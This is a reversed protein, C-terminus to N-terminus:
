DKRVNFKMWDKITYDLRKNKILTYYFHYRFAMALPIFSFCFIVICIAYHGNTIHFGIYAWLLVACILYFITLTFFAKAQKALQQDTLQYRQIIKDFNKAREAKFQDLRLFQYVLDKIYLSYSRNRRWDAWDKFRFIKGLFKIM